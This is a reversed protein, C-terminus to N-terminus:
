KKILTIIYYIILEPGNLVIRRMWSPNDSIWICANLLNLVDTRSWFTTQLINAMKNLGRHTLITQFWENEACNRKESM